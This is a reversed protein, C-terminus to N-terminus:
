LSLTIPDLCPSFAALLPPWCGRFVSAIGGGCTNLLLIIYFIIYTITSGNYLYYLAM